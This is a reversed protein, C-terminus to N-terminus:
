AGDGPASPRGSTAPGRGCAHGCGGGSVHGAGRGRGGLGCKGHCAGGGPGNGRGGSTAVAGGGRAVCREFAPIHHELSAWRNHEFAGKVDQPLPGSALLRDYLAVNQRESVLAAECAELATAPVPGTEAVKSEPVALGRSTLLTELFRAHRDEARVANTFPRIQGHKAIVARYVAETKREDAIGELISASTREDLPAAKAAPSAPPVPQGHDHGQATAMTTAVLVTALATGVSVMRTM